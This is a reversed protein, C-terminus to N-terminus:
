NDAKYTVQEEYSWSVGSVEVARTIIGVEEEVSGLGVLVDVVIHHDLGVTRLLSLDQILLRGLCRVPMLLNIELLLLLLSNLSQDSVLIVVRDVFDELVM